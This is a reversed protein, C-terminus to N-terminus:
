KRDLIQQVCYKCELSENLLEMMGNALGSSTACADLIGYKGQPETALVQQSTRSLGLNMYANGATFLPFKAETQFMQGTCSLLIHAADVGQIEM